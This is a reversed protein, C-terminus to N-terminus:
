YLYNEFVDVQGMSQVVDPVVLEFLASGLTITIFYEVNKLTPSSAM